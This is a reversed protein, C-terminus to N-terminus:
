LELDANAISIGAITAFQIQSCHHGCTVDCFKQRVVEDVEGDYKAEVEGVLRGADDTGRGGQFGQAGARAEEAPRFSARKGGTAQKTKSPACGASAAM